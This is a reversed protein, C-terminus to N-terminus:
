SYYSAYVEGTLGFDILVIDDQGDRKVMGYSSLKGFDGAPAKIQLMFDLIANAFESESIKEELEADMGWIPRRGNNRENQNSLWMNFDDINYGFAKIFDNKGVKRALEMEVWLADEHNDLTNALISGFYGDGGWQIEVENQALGKQNKALKLVKENDIKYVIRSSGSSIRQLNEQCYKIRSAFSNLTKFHEMNFNTPYDEDLMTELISMDLSERLIKKTKLREFLQGQHIYNVLTEIDVRGEKNEGDRNVQIKFKPTEEDYLIKLIRLVGNKDIKYNTDLDLKHKELLQKGAVYTKVINNEGDYKNLTDFDFDIKILHDIVSDFMSEEEFRDENDLLNEVDYRDINDPNNEYVFGNYLSEGDRSNRLKSLTHKKVTGEEVNNLAEIFIESYGGESMDDASTELIFEYFNPINTEFYDTVGSGNDNNLIYEFFHTGSIPRDEEDMIQDSEFHLQYKTDSDKNIVVYLKGDKNYHDFYNDSNDAATCWQTGKGILCSARETLPVMVKWEDDEYVREIEKQKIQKLEQSKSTPESDGAGIFESIIDHLDPLSKLANLDRNEKPIKNIFKDFLRLYEKAKYFDEDKLQNNKRLNYLWTFVGKNFNDGKKPYLDNLKNFLEVDGNLVPFKEKNSYFKSWADNVTIETLLGENLLSKILKKTNM